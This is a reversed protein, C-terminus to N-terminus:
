SENELNEYFYLCECLPLPPTDAHEKATKSLQSDSAHRFRLMSFRQPRLSNETVEPLELLPPSRQDLPVVIDNVANLSVVSDRMRRARRPSNSSIIHRLGDDEQPGQTPATAPPIPDLITRRRLDKESPRDLRLRSWSPM